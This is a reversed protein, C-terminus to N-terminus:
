RHFLFVSHKVPSKFPGGLPIVIFICHGDRTPWWARLPWCAAPRHEAGCCLAQTNSLNHRKSLNVFSTLLPALIQIKALRAGRTM